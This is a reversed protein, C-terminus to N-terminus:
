GEAEMDTVDVAAVAAAAAAAAVVDPDPRARRAPPRAPSASGEEGGEEEEGAGGGGDGDVEGGGGDEDAAKFEWVRRCYPCRPETRAGLWRTICQIHFAHGCAGWVVPADDGPGKAEPPAGDYPARCIGCMDDGAGWTWSAVGHWHLIEVRFDDLDGQRTPKNKIKPAAPHPSVRTFFVACPASNKKKEKPPAGVVM